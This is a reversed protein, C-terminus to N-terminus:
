IQMNMVSQYASVVRDRVQVVLGLAMSAQQESIMLQDVSVPAGAAYQSALVDAQNSLSNAQDVAGSLFQGFSPGTVSGTPQSASPSTLPMSSLLSTPLVTGSL